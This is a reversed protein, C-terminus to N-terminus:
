CPLMENAFVDKAIQIMDLEPKGLYADTRYFMYVQWTEPPDALSLIEVEGDTNSMRTTLYPVIALGMGTAAMRYCSINSSFEMKIKPRIQKRKFFNDCFMRIAHEQFLMFFPYDKIASPIIVNKGQIKASAPIIGRKAALVLEEAYIAVSSLGQAETKWDAPLLVMDVRGNRLVEMLKQGSATYVELEIGPYREAFPPLLRPMMYSARDRSTGITLKGSMHQTVDRLEKLLRENEMLIRRASEMYREGAYTLTVPTTSRDFLKVGLENEVNKIYHSLASQSIYLSEAARTINQSEAVTLLYQLQRFDM